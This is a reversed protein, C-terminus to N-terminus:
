LEGRRALDYASKEEAATKAGACLRFPADASLGKKINDAACMENIEKSSLADFEFIADIIDGKSQLADTLIERLDHYSMSELIHHIHASKNREVVFDTIGSM